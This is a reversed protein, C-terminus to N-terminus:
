HAATRLTLAEELAAVVGCEEVDGVAPFRELLGPTSNAMVRPHGVVELMPLDGGSDGIAMVDALPVRLHEALYSVATGKTVGSRTLNVFAVGPLAPSHTAVAAVGSPVSALLPVEGGATLVWQCRVIPESVAVESLDTVLASAGILKAHDDSLKTKREVYMNTPTYLELVVGHGRAIDIIAHVADEPLAAAMLTPGHAFAVHAGNQFVHPNNPGIREALRQASGFGPRGTCAAVQVGAEQLKGVAKFVCDLVQGNAGVLTGDIDVVVLPIM